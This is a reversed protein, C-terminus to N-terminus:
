VNCVDLHRTSSYVLLTSGWMQKEKLLAVLSATQQDTAWLMGEYTPGDWGPVTDYPDHVAQWALFLFLPESADHERVIQLSRRGFLTSSYVYDDGAYPATGNWRDSVCPCTDNPSPTAPVTGNDARM